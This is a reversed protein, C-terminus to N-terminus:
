FALRLMNQCNDVKKSSEKKQKLNFKSSFHIMKMKIFKVDYAAYWIWEPISDTPDNQTGKRNWKKKEKFLDLM